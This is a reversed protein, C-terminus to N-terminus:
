GTRKLTNVILGPDAVKNRRSVEAILEDVIKKNTQMNKNDSNISLISTYEETYIALLDLLEAYSLNAYNNM